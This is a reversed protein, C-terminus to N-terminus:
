ISMNKNMLEIVEGLKHYQAISLPTILANSQKHRMLEQPHAGSSLLLKILALNQKSVALALPTLGSQTSTVSVDAKKKLMLKILALDFHTTRDSKSILNILPHDYNIDPKQGNNFLSVNPSVGEKLLKAMVRQQDAHSALVLPEFHHSSENWLDHSKGLIDEVVKEDLNNFLALQLMSSGNQDKVNVDLTRAKLLAATSQSDKNEITIQLLSKGDFQVNIDIGEEVLAGLGESKQAQAVFHVLPIGDIKLSDPSGKQTKFLSHIADKDDQYIADRLKAEFELQPLPEKPNKLYHSSSASHMSDLATNVRVQLSTKIPSVKHRLSDKLVERFSDQRQVGQIKM